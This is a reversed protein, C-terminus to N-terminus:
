SFIEEENCKEYSSFANAILRNSQHLKDGSLSHKTQQSLYSAEIFAKDLLEDSLSSEISLISKDKEFLYFGEGVFFSMERNLTQFM